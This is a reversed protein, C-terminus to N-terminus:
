LSITFSRSVSRESFGDFARDIRNTATAIYAAAIGVKAVDTVIGAAKCSTRTVNATDADQASALQSDYERVTQKTARGLSHSLTSQIQSDVGSSSTLNKLPGSTSYIKM